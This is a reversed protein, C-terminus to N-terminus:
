MSLLVAASYCGHHWSVSYYVPSIGCLPGSSMLPLQQQSAPRGCAAFGVGQLQLQMSVQVADVHWAGFAAERLYNGLPWSPM